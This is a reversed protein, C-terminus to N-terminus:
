KGRGIRRDILKKAYNHYGIYYEEINSIGELYSLFEERYLQLSYETQHQNKNLEINILSNLLIKLYKQYKLVDKHNSISPEKLVQLNILINQIDLENFNKLFGISDGTFYYKAILPDTHLLMNATFVELFYYSALREEANSAFLETLGEGLCSLGPCEDTYGFMSKNKLDNSAMHFLEHSLASKICNNEIQIRNINFEYLGETNPCDVEDMVYIRLGQKNEYYNKQYETPFKELYHEVIKFPSDKAKELKGFGTENTYIKKIEM